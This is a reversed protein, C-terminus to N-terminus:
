EPLYLVFDDADKQTFEILVDIPETQKKDVLDLLIEAVGKQEASFQQTHEVVILEPNFYYDFDNVDGSGTTIFIYTDEDLQKELAKFAKAVYTKKYPEDWIHHHCYIKFYHKYQQKKMVAKM